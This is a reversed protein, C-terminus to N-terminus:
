RSCWGHGEWECRDVVERNADAEEAPGSLVLTQEVKRSLRQGSRRESECRARRRCSRACDGPAFARRHRAVTNSESGGQIERLDVRLSISTTYPPRPSLRPTLVYFVSGRSGESSRRFGIQLLDDRHGGVGTNVRGSDKGLKPVVTPSFTGARDRPVEFRVEGIDTRVTKVTTGKRSNGGGHGSPDSHEYGLHEAM